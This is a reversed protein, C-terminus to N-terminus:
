PLRSAQPDPSTVIRIAGSRPPRAAGNRRTVEIPQDPLVLEAWAEVSYDALGLASRVGIENLPTAVGLPLGPVELSQGPAAGAAAAQVRTLFRESRESVLTWEPYDHLLPTYRLAEVLLMLTLLGAAAGTTTRRAASGALAGLLLAFAPLLALGYWSAVEGSAGILVLGGLLWVGCVLLLGRRAPDLALAAALAGGSALALGRAVTPDSLV